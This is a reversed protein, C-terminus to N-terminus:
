DLCMTWVPLVLVLLVRRAKLGGEGEFILRGRLDSLRMVDGMGLELVGLMWGVDVGLEIRALLYIGRKDLGEAPLMRVLMQVFLGGFGRVDQVGFFERSRCSITNAM